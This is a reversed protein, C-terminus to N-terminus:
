KLYEIHTASIRLTTRGRPIRLVMHGRVDILALLALLNEFYVLPDGGVWQGVAVASGFATQAAKDLGDGNHKLSVPEM